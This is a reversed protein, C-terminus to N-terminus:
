EIGYKRKQINNIKEFIIKFNLKLTTKMHGIRIGTNVIENNM